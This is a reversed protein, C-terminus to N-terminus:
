HGSNKETLTNKDDSDVDFCVSLLSLTSSLRSILYMFNAVNFGRKKKNYEGGGISIESDMLDM